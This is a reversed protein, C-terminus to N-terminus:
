KRCSESREEVTIHCSNLTNTISPFAKPIRFYEYLKDNLEAPNIAIEKRLSNNTLILRNNILSIRGQETPLSCMLSQTFYSTPSNQQFHNMEEFDSLQRPTLTFYYSPLYADKSQNWRGVSMYKVGDVDINNLIKYNHKGDFQIIDPQILLPRFTFDGFGVDVLWQQRGIIVVIALHDYEPGVNRGKVVRASILFANFDLHLLLQHFLGNLEYCYGGRQHHVVKNYFQPVNLHIPEGAQIDINEFPVAYLHHRMLADLTQKDSEIAGAYRIRRLYRNVNMATFSTVLQYLHFYVFLELGVICPM